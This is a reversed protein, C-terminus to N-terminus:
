VKMEADDAGRTAIGPFATAADNDGNVKEKKEDGGSGFLDMIGPKKKKDAKSGAITASGDSNLGPIAAPSNLQMSQRKNIEEDVASQGGQTSAKSFRMSMWKTLTAGKKKKDVPEEAM